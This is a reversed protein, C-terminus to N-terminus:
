GAGADKPVAPCVSSFDCFSCKWREDVANPPRKGNWYELYHRLNDEVWETEYEFLDQGLLSKDKQWEYRTCGDGVSSLVTCSHTCLLWRSSTSSTLTLTYLTICADRVPTIGQGTFEITSYSSM